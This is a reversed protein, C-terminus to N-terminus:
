CKWTHAASVYIYPSSCQVSPLSAVFAAKPSRLRARVHVARPVAQGPLHADTRLLARPPVNHWGSHMVEVKHHKAGM